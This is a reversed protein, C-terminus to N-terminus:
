ILQKSHQSSKNGMTAERSQMSKKTATWQHFYSTELLEVEKPSFFMPFLLLSM